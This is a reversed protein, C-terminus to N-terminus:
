KRPALALSRELAALRSDVGGLKALIERCLGAADAPVGEGAAAAPVAGASGFARSTALLLKTTFEERRRQSNFILNYRTEMDKAHGVYGEATFVLSVRMPDKRPHEVVVLQALPVRKRLQMAHDFNLLLGKEQLIVLYRHQLMGSNNMQARMAYVGRM